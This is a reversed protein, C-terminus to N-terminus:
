PARKPLRFAFTTGESEGANELWLTGGHQQVTRNAIALGIGSGPYVGRSHLRQFPEFIREAFRPDIGIGNDAVFVVWDGEREESWVRVVPTRDKARFKIANNVLNQFVQRLRTANGAVIPLSQVELVGEAERLASDLDARVAAVAVNLDVESTPVQHRLQAYELVDRILRRLRDAADTVHKFHGRGVEDLGGSYDEELIKLFNQITRLPEQLDHSVVYSFRNLEENAEQLDAVSERLRGDLLRREIAVGIWGSMLRLLSRDAESWAEQRAGPTSFNLTGYIQKNVILPVGIYTELGFADYCPHGAHESEGMHHVAVVDDAALTLCCYTAGLSFTQNVELVGPPAAVHVVRYTDGDVASVIGITTGLLENALALASTIDDATQDHLLKSFALLQTADANTATGADSSRDRNSDASRAM